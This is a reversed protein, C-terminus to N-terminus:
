EELNEGKRRWSRKDDNNKCSGEGFEWNKKSAPGIEARAPLQSNQRPLAPRAEAGRLRANHGKHPRRCGRQQGHPPWVGPRRRTRTSPRHPKSGAHPHLHVRFGTPSGATVRKESGHDWVM